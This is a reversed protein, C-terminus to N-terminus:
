PNRTFGHALAATEQERWAALFGELKERDEAELAGERLVQEARARFVQLDVVLELQDTVATDSQEPVSDWFHSTSQSGTFAEAIRVIAVEDQHIVSNAWSRVTDGGEVHQWWM